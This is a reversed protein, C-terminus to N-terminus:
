KKSVNGNVARAIEQGATSNSAAIIRLSEILKQDHVDPPMYPLGAMLQQWQFDDLYATRGSKVYDVRIIFRTGDVRQLSKPNRTRKEPGSRLCIIHRDGICWSWRWLHPPAYVNCTSYNAPAPYRNPYVVQNM